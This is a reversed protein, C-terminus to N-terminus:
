GHDPCWYYTTTKKSKPNMHTIENKTNKTKWAPLKRDGKNAQLKDGAKRHNRCKGAGKDKNDKNDPGKNKRLHYELQLNKTELTELKAMFAIYKEGEPTAKLWVGKDQMLTAKDLAMKMLDQPTYVHSEEDHADKENSIYKTFEMDPVVMYAQWLYKILSTSQEGRADLQAMQSTVHVNFAKIDYKVEAMYSLLAM